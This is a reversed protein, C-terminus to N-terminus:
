QGNERSGPMDQVKADWRSLKKWSERGLVDRRALFGRLPSIPSLLPVGFSDTGCLDLLLLSFGIMVGWVGFFGGALLFGLRLLALPEYLRPVAYGAIATLAVVMLSPASVLGASVATDGIVLGGVISVTASLSRPARLGAERLIEYLFYLLLTEALVPFPTESEAQAIKLMLSEPLLEPHHTAIAVYLGPLLAGVFFAAYKIWRIFAAYFPRTLYDDLTQFNEVFLFPALIVSPTGEVLVAVRGEEIKGCVVDPRETLGVGSFLRGRELFGTLYGAGLVTKLDCNELKKKVREVIEPSAIGELYCLALPTHSQSGTELKEFKLATTKMRRRIMAMNNQYSETFGDKAGRQMVENQPEEPGRSEFGQVGFVLADPCGDVCLVAFGSMLLVLLQDLRNERKEEMAGLVAQEIFALREEPNKPLKTGTLPNLISLTINQKSVLGDLGFLAAKVGSLDLDRAMFDMARQFKEQFYAKNEEVSSSLVTMEALHEMHRGERRFATGARLRNEKWTNDGLAKAKNGPKPMGAPNEPISNGLLARTSTKPTGGGTPRLFM